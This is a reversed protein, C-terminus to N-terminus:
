TKNLNTKFNKTMLEVNPNNKIIKQVGAIKDFATHTPPPLGKQKHVSSFWSCTDPEAKRGIKLKNIFLSAHNKRHLKTNTM